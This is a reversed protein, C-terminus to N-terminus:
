PCVGQFGDFRDASSREGNYCRDTNNGTCIKAQEHFLSVGIIICTGAHAASIEPYFAPPDGMRGAAHFAFCFLIDGDLSLITFLPDYFVRADDIGPYSQVKFYRTGSRHKSSSGSEGGTEM